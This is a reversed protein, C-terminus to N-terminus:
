HTHEEGDETPMEGHGGSDSGIAEVLVDVEVDGSKEFTLTVPFTEGEVLPQKLGMLMIHLGHPALEVSGHSPIEIDGAPAMVMAGNEMSMNHIEVKAAIAASAGILKDAAMGHNDIRVYAAGAKAGGPTARAWPHHLVLDGLKFEHAAAPLAFTVIALFAFIFNRM